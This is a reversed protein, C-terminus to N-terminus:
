KRSNKKAIMHVMGKVSSLINVSFGTKKLLSKVQSTSIRVKKYASKKFEWKGENRQYILDHVFVFDSKYELFCTMIKDKDNHVPIFRDTGNVAVTLDRFSLILKGNVELVNFTNNFFEAIARKSPLHLLTDGMCIALEFPAKESYLKPKLFNGQFVEIEGDQDHQELEHLLQRNLDTATVDFNLSSLALSQFGSGCGFDIAKANSNPSIDHEQFWNENEEVQQEFDGFMWSYNAALLNKYHEKVSNENM